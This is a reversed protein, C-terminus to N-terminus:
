TLGLSQMNHISLLSPKLDSFYIRASLLLVFTLYLQNPGEIGLDYCYNSVIHDDVCWLSSYIRFNRLFEIKAYPTLLCIQSTLFGRIGIDTFSLTIEGRRM